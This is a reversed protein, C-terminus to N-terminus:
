KILRPAISTCASGCLCIHSQVLECKGVLLSTFGRKGLMEPLTVEAHPLGGTGDKHQWADLGFTTANRPNGDQRQKSYRM